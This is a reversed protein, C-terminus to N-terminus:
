NKYVLVATVHKWEKFYHDFNRNLDGFPNILETADLILLYPKTRSGQFNTAKKKARNIYGHFPWSFSVYSRPIPEVQNVVAVMGSMTLGNVSNKPWWEPRNGDKKHEHFVQPNGYPKESFLLWKGIEEIREGEVLCAILKRLRYKDIGCLIVPLYIHINFERKLGNAFDAIEQAQKVRCSWSNKEKARTVEVEIVDEDWAVDFDYSKKSTRKVPEIDRAKLVILLAASSIEAFDNDNFKKNKLYGKCFKSFLECRFVTQDFYTLPLGKRLAVSSNFKPLSSLNVNNAEFCKFLSSLCSKAVEGTAYCDTKELYDSYEM